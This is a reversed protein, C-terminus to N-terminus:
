TYLYLLVPKCGTELVTHKRAHAEDEVCVWDWLLSRLGIWLWDTM